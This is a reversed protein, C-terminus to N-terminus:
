HRSYGNGEDDTFYIGWGFEGSYLNAFLLTDDDPIEDYQANVKILNLM